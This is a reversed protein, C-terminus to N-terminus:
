RVVVQKGKGMFRESGEHLGKLAEGLQEGTNWWGAVDMEDHRAIVLRLRLLFDLHIAMAPFAGPRGALM